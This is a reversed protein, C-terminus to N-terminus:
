FFDSVDIKENPDFSTDSSFAELAKAVSSEKGFDKSYVRAPDDEYKKLYDDLDLFFKNELSDKIKQNEEDLKIPIVVLEYGMSDCMGEMLKKSPTQKRGQM